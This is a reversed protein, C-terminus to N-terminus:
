LKETLYEAMRRYLHYQANRDGIGHNRNPYVEADYRVGAKIMANIMEASNQWHVNDDGTGHVLLYNGKINKVFQIPSNDDYGAPNESPKRLFRETYINDYYRWSTVPAVAVATKFVDASKTICLSSMYGGFSWGWIGIRSNDVYSLKGLWRAASTQDMLELKGLNLYTCKKFAEGRHGTGRGDFSVVIYGKQALYQHYLYNRGGWNNRVTNAGPGGYVFMLVPYKKGPDFDHPKIMWYNLMVGSDVIAAGFEIKGFAYNELNKKAIQNDELVREPSRGRKADPTIEKLVFRAPEGFRSHADIYYKGGNLFTIGHHGSEPTLNNKKKGNFDISYCHDETASVESSNYYITGTTENVYNIGLVDFRGNTIATEKFQNLVKAPTYRYIHNFGNKESTTIFGPTKKFFYLNDHIDIYTKSKEHLVTTVAGTKASAFLLKWENQTRNLWQISLQGPVQTWQIRPLYQDGQAIDAKVRKDTGPEYVHVEVLSNDEGAKPYKWREQDPYLGTFMDMSFEKVGSEDFRYYAIHKGDPSWEFGRSMSFEEEYVWDVAGNIISNKLGDSTVATEVQKKLDFVFLDNDRVYALYRNDPSLQPYMAKQDSIKISNGTTLDVLYILSKTSHRYISETAATLVLYKEDKSFIYGDPMMDVATETSKLIVAASDGTWLKRKIIRWRPPPTGPKPWGNSESVLETYHLGDNMVNFGSIGATRFTGKLFIDELTFPQKQAFLAVTSQAALFLLAFGQRM